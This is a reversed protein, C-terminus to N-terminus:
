EFGTTVAAAALAREAQLRATEKKVKEAKDESKTVIVLHVTYDEAARLQGKRGYGYGKAGEVKEALDKSKEKLKEKTEKDALGTSSGEVVPDRYKDTNLQIRATQYSSLDGALEAIM